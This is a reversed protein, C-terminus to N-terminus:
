MCVHTYLHTYSHTYVHLYVHTYCQRRPLIYAHACMESVLEHVHRFVHRCVRRCSHRHDGQLCWRILHKADRRQEESCVNGKRSFVEDLEGDAICNWTCLRMRDKENMLENDSIDQVFLLRGSCLEFLTVGIAWVDAETSVLLESGEDAFQWRAVEPAWYGSSGLKEARQRRHGVFNAADLDCLVINPM